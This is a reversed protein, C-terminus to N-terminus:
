SSSITNSALLKSISAQSSVDLVCSGDLASVRGGGGVRGREGGQGAGAREQEKVAGGQLGM